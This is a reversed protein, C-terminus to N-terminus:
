QPRSHDVPEPPGSLRIRQSWASTPKEVWVYLLYAVFFCVVFAAPFWIIRWAEPTRPLMLNILKGGLPFHILYLSYSIMGLWIGPRWHVAPLYRIALLSALGAVVESHRSMPLAAGVALAALAWGELMPIQRTTLQCAVFGMLFYPLYRVVDVQHAFFAALAACVVFSLRRIWANGSFLLPFCVSIFAYFKLEVILTWIVPNEAPVRVYILGLLFDVWNLPPSEHKVMAAGLSLAFTFALAVMYAPQLRLLRKAWFRGIHAMRYGGKSMSLPIIYGSIVFFVQVGIQGYDALDFFPAPLAYRFHCVCVVFAALGRLYDLTHDRGPQILADANLQVPANM